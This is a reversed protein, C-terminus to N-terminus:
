KEKELQIRVCVKKGNKDIFYASPFPKFTRARLINILDEAVYSKNLSIQDIKSLDKVTHAPYKVKQKKRTINGNRIDPWTKKFLEIGEAVLKQYLIKGTDTSDIIVESRTIIDGSDAHSDIYHITVGAKTKDIIPWVNPNRGRNYPLYSLHLNICGANPINILELKLLSGWFISLVLDPSLKRIKDLIEKKEMDEGKFVKEKPLNLVKLIKEPYGENIYNRTGPPPIFTGVIDEGRQKLYKAIEFGAPYDILLLLKM